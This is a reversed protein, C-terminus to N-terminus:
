IKGASDPAPNPNPPSLKMINLFEVLQGPVEALVSKALAEKPAQLAFPNLSPVLGFFFFFFAMKEFFGNDSSILNSSHLM